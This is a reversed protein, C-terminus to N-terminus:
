LNYLREAYGEEIQISHLSKVCILVVRGDPLWGTKYYTGTCSKIIYKCNFMEKSHTNTIQTDYKHLQILM